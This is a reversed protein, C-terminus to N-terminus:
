QQAWKRSISRLSILRPYCNSNKMKRTTAKLMTSQFLDEHDLNLFAFRDRNILDYCIGFFYEDHRRYFADFALRRKKEDAHAM